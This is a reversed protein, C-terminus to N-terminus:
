QQAQRGKNRLGEYFKRKDAAQEEPTKGGNPIGFRQALYQDTEKDSPVPLTMADWADGKPNLGLTLANQARQQVGLIERVTQRYKHMYETPSDNEADPFGKQIRAAELISM